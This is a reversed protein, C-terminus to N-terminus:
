NRVGVLSESGSIKRARVGHTSPHYKTADPMLGLSEPRSDSARVGQCERKAFSVSTLFFLYLEGDSIFKRIKKRDIPCYSEIKFWKDLCSFCFVHGCVDIYAKRQDKFSEFCIPCISDKGDM